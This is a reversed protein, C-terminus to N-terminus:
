PLICDSIEHGRERLTKRLEIGQDVRDAKSIPSLQDVHNEPLEHIKNGELLNWWDKEYRVGVWDLLRFALNKSVSVNYLDITHVDYKEAIKRARAEVELCLWVCLQYDTLDKEIDAINIENDGAGPLPHYGLGRPTRGPVGNTKYWSFANDRVPRRLHIFRAGKEALAELYGNKPLLSTSVYIDPLKGWVGEVIGSVDEKRPMSPPFYEPKATHPLERAMVWFFASLWHIGSRGPTITFIRNM